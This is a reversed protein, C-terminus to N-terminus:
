RKFVSGFSGPYHFNSHSAEIHPYKCSRDRAQDRQGSTKQSTGTPTTSTPNKKPLAAKKTSRFFMVPQPSLGQLKADLDASLKSDKKVTVEFAVVVIDDRVVVLRKENQAQKLGYDDTKLNNIYQNFPGPLLRRDCAKSFTM